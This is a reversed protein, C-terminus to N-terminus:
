PLIHPNRGLGAKIKPWTEWAFSASCPSHAHIQRACRDFKKGVELWMQHLPSSCGLPVCIQPVPLSTVPQEWHPAQPM